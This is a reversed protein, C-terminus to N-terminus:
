QQFTNKWWLVFTQMDRAIFYLGGAAIIRQQERLQDVSMKDKGVKIEISLHRGKFVAIIDATGKRTTGKTFRVLEKVNGFALEIKQKRVQGQTNIRTASGGSLTIWEQICRTLGNATTDCYPKLKMSRGGSAIFAAPTKHEMDAYKMEKLEDKWNM